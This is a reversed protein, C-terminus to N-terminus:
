HAAAPSALAAARPPTPGPLGAADRAAIVFRGFEVFDPQRPSSARWALGITRVPAPAKFPVVRLRSHAGTEVPLALDPLITGGYGNAVM